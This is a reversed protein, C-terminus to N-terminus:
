IRKVESIDRRFAVKTEDEFIREMSFREYFGEAKYEKHTTVLMTSYGNARGVLAAQILLFTGIGKKRMDPRVVLKTVELNNVGNAFAEGITVAGLVQSINPSIGTAAVLVVGREIDIKTMTRSSKYLNRDLLSFLSTIPEVMWMPIISNPGGLVNYMM